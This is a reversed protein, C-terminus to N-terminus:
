PKGVVGLFLPSGTANDILGFLFPRDFVVPTTGSKPEAVGTAAAATTGEEDVEIHAVQRVDSIWCSGCIAEFDAGPAFAPGMGMATLPPVLELTRDFKFRPLRVSIKGVALSTRARNWLDPTLWGSFQEPTLRTPPLVVLMSFRGGQYPLLVAEFDASLSNAFMGENAMMAVETTAGTFTEFAAQRTLRPDFRSQWYGHFYTANVLVARTGPDFSEFITKIKQHTAGVVWDNVSKPAAESGFDLTGLKALYDTRLRAAYSATPPPQGKQTWVANAIELQSGGGDGTTLEAMLAKADSGPDGTPDLGLTQMMDTRTSRGAGSAAMSLALSASLPSLVLNDDGTLLRSALQVGFDNSSVALRSDLHRVPAPAPSSQGLCGTVALMAVLLGTLGRGRVDPM